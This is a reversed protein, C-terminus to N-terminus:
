SSSEKKWKHEDVTRASKLARVESGRCCKPKGQPGNSSGKGYQSTEAACVRTSFFIRFVFVNRGKVFHFCRRDNIEATTSRQEGRPGTLVTSTATREGVTKRRDPVRQHLRRTKPAPRTTSHVPSNFIGKKCFPFWGTEWCQGGTGINTASRVRGEKESRACIKSVCCFVSPRCERRGSRM